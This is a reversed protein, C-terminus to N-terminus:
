AGPILRPGIEFDLRVHAAVTMAWQTVMEIETADVPSDSQSAGGGFREGIRKSDESFAPGRVVADATLEDVPLGFWDTVATFTARPTSALAAADLLRVRDPMALALAAFQAHQVLWGMAAVQLDSQAFLDAESFGADFPASAKISLYTKRAWIRGFMGKRAISRLYSPLDRYLLLARARPAAQMLSRMLPNVVNSPKIVVTEGPALPRGLLLVLLDLTAATLRDRGRLDAADNLVIPEKLGMAIGPLDMARALLTSRAFASHFIFHVRPPAMDLLPAIAPVPVDIRAYADGLSADDLFTAARQADRDAEIFRLLRGGDILRHPLWRANRAITELDISM